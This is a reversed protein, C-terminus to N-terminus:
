RVSQFAGQCSSGAGATCGYCHDGVSIAKSELYSLNINWIKKENEFALLPLGIAQNFDCDFIRGDWSVSLTDRCMLHEITKSNFNNKLLNLYSEHCGVAKLYKEYRTIPMNTLTYLNNFEVGFFELLEKKYNTELIKQNGPLHEGVPNYVLNLVLREDAKGYGLQNLFRLAEISDDFVGRGRQKDVNEKQYCPLSAIIVVKQDALFEGLGEYGAQLLISLNCRDIVEIGRKRAELVLRKFHPNMEPAGGTLDLTEPKLRDMAKVVELAVDEAMNEIVKTPGAEVHCHSCTLNCLKGMNVQLIKLPMRRLVVDEEKLKESFRM